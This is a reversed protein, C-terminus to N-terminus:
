SAPGKRPMTKFIKIITILMTAGTIVAVLRVAPVTGYHCPMKTSKCYGTIDPVFYGAISLLLTFGAAALVASSRRFSVIGTGSVLLLAGIVYESGAMDSCHMPAYGQYECVPLIYRPVLFLLIGSVLSIIGATKIM